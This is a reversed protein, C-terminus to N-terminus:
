TRVGHKCKCKMLWVLIGHFHFFTKSGKFKNLKNRKRGEKKQQKKLLPSTRIGFPFLLLLKVQPFLLYYM